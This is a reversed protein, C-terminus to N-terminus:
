RRSERGLAVAGDQADLQLEDLIQARIVLQQSGANGREAHQHHRAQVARGVDRGIDDAREGVAHGGVGIAARATRFGRVADLAHHVHQRGLQLHIRGLDAQLVEDRLSSNGNGM